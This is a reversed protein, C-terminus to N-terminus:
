GPGWAGGDASAAYLPLLSLLLYFGGMGGVSAALLLLMPRTLLRSPDTAAPTRGPRGNM